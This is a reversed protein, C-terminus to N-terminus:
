KRAAEKEAKLQAVTKIEANGEYTKVLKEVEKWLDLDAELMKDKFRGTLEIYKAGGQYAGQRDGPTNPDTSAKNRDWSLQMWSMMAPASVKINGQHASWVKVYMSIADDIMKRDEFSKALLLGVQPSFKSFGSKARDLYVKAHEAAKTFDKKDMNLEVMRYLSFERESKEQSDAYVRAFDELGKDIDAAGASKGYVDARGLLAAFRYAQDQRGLAEDYYPLAERPTSTNNRLYDGVRVLIFNTLDKVAFDTKLNQFLVKIMASGSRKRAEDNSKKIVGEFVGIIAV